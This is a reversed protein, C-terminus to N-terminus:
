PDRGSENPDDTEKVFLDTFGYTVFHFHPVPEDRLYVSIGHIPDNGGLQYPLVTGFHAHPETDCAIPWGAHGRQARCHLSCDAPPADGAPISLTRPSQSSDAPATLASSRSARLDGSLRWVNSEAEATARTHALVM